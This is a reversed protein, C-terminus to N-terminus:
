SGIWFILANDRNSTKFDFKVYKSETFLDGPLQAYANAKMQISTGVDQVLCITIM